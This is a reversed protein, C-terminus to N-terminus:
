KKRQSNTRKLENDTGEQAALRDQYYSSLFSVISNFNNLESMNKTYRLREEYCHM